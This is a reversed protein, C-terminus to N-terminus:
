CIIVCEGGGHTTTPLTIARDRCTLVETASWVWSNQSQKACSNDGDSIGIPKELSVNREIYSDLIYALQFVIIITQQEFEAWAMM